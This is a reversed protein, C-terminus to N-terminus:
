VLAVDAPVVIKTVAIIWPVVMTVSVTRAGLSMTLRCTIPETLVSMVSAPKFMPVVSASAMTLHVPCRLAQQALASVAVVRVARPTAQRCIGTVRTAIM